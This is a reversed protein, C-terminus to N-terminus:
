FGANQADEVSVQQDFFGNPAAVPAELEIRAAVVGGMLQMFAAHLTIQHCTAGYRRTLDSLIDQYCLMDVECDDVRQQQRVYDSNAVRVKRANAKRIDESSGFEKIGGARQIADELIADGIAELRTREDALFLKRQTLEEEAHAIEDVLDDLQRTLDTYRLINQQLITHSM